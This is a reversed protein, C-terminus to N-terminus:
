VPFLLSLASSVPPLGDEESVGFARAVYGKALEVVGEEFRLHQGVFRWAPCWRYEWEDNERGSGVFYLFDFCAIQRDPRLRGGKGSPFPAPGTGADANYPAPPGPFILASLPWFLLDWNWEGEAGM